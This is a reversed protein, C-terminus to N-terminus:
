TAMEVEHDPAKEVTDNKKSPGTNDTRLGVAAEAEKQSYPEEKLDKVRRRHPKGKRHSVLNTETDFWKACEICYHQGLAPLDETAKTEKYQRLHQPSLLDAKIQDLDRTKRRTKTITRHATVGM